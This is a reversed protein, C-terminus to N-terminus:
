GTESMAGRRAACWTECCHSLNFIDERDLPTIFTKHLEDILTRRLKSADDALAHQSVIAASDVREIANELFRVDELTKGAQTVLMSVFQGKHRTAGDFWGM